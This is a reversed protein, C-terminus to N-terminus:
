LVSVNSMCSKENKIIGDSEHLDRKTFGLTIHPYYSNPDFDSRDGGNKIYAQRIETRIKILDSSKVVLYFTQELHKDIEKSGQGLCIIEFKSSQLKMKKAIKNIDAISLHKKLVDFYEIPTVVTIHAEGRSTLNLGTKTKLFDFLKEVPEFPIDMSLYSDFRGQGSHELQALQGTAYVSKDINYAFAIHSFFLSFVLALKM